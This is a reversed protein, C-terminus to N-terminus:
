DNDGNPMLFAFIIGAGSLFLTTARLWVDSVDGSEVTWIGTTLLMVVVANWVVSLLIFARYTKIARPSIVRREVPGTSRHSRSPVPDDDDDYRSSGRAM